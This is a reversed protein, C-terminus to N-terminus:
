FKDNWGGVSAKVWRQQQRNQLFESSGEGTFLHSVSHDSSQLDQQNAHPRTRLCSLTEIWLRLCTPRVSVARSWTSRRPSQQHYNCSYNLRKSMLLPDTENDFQRSIEIKVRSEIDTNERTMLSGHGNSSVYKYSIMGMSSLLQQTVDILSWNSVKSEDM